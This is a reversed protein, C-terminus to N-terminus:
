AIRLVQALQIDCDVSFWVGSEVRKIEKSGRQQLLGVACRSLKKRCSDLDVQHALGTKLVEGNAQSPCRLRIFLKIHRIHHEHLVGTPLVANVANEASRLAIRARLTLWKETQSM